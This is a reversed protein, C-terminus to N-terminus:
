LPKGTEDWTGLRILGNYDEDREYIAYRYM